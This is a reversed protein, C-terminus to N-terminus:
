RVMAYGLGMKNGSGTVLCVRPKGDRNVLRTGRAASTGDSPMQFTRNTSQFPLLHNKFSSTISTGLHVPTAHIVVESDRVLLEFGVRPERIRTGSISPYAIIMWGTRALGAGTRDDLKLAGSRDFAILQVTRM